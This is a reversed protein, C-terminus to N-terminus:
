LTLDPGQSLSPWTPNSTCSVSKPQPAPTDIFSSASVGLTSEKCQVGQVDSRQALHTLSHCIPYSSVGCPASRVPWCSDEPLLKRFSTEQLSPSSHGMVLRRAQDKASLAWHLHPWQPFGSICGVHPQQLGDTVRTGGRVRRLPHGRVAGHQRM